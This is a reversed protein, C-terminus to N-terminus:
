QTSHSNRILAAAETHGAKQATEAPMEGGAKRAATDAGHALLLRIMELQGNQAAEHLPTYDDQQTANVQAGHELLAQSIALNQAAVSSHLPMVKLGNRSALNVQAGRALLYDVVGARGFFAALGLPTFGDPSFANILASDAAALASVRELRGVAAAEFLSLEAGRAVLLDAVASHGYYTALLVASEGSGAHANVLTADGDLLTQVGALDGAKVAEIMAQVNAM